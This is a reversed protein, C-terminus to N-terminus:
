EDEDFGYEFGCATCLLDDLSCESLEVPSVSDWKEQGEATLEEGVCDAYSREGYINEYAIEKLCTTCVHKYLIEKAELESGVDKVWGPKSCKYLKM